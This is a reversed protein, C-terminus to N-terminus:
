SMVRSSDKLKGKRDSGVARRIGLVGVELPELSCSTVGANHPLKEEIPKHSYGRGERAIKLMTGNYCYTM